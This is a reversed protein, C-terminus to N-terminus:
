RGIFISSDSCNCKLDVLSDVGWPCFFLCLHALVPTLGTFILERKEKSREERESVCVCVDTSYVLNFPDIAHFPNLCFSSPPSFLCVGILLQSERPMQEWKFSDLMAQRTLPWKLHAIETWWPHRMEIINCRSQPKMFALWRIEAQSGPRLSHRLRMSSCIAHYLDLRRLGNKNISQYHCLIM